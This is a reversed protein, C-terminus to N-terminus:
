QIELVSTLLKFSLLYNTKKIAFFQFYALPVEEYCEYVYVHVTSSLCSGTLVPSLALVHKFMKTGIEFGKRKNRPMERDESCRM